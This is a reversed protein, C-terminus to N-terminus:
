RRDDRRQATLLCHCFCGAGDGIHPLPPGLLRCTLRPLLVADRGESAAGGATPPAPAAIGPVAWSIRADQRGKRRRTTPDVGPRWSAFPCPTLPCPGWGQGGGSPSPLLPTHPPLADVRARGRQPLPAHYLSHPRFQARARGRQPLPSHPTPSSAPHSTGRGRQAKAGERQQILALICLPLPTLPLAGVRARGRQPLPAPPHPPLAGVRARGRQPLPSHPMPSSAPHSTRRGRQAKAGERQQILALVCLPLPHPPLAGVRARGRQPLPPLPTLPCPGWGQGGGSPSPPTACPPTPPVAGKGEGAPPPPCPPHPSFM